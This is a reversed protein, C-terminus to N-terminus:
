GNVSAWIGQRLRNRQYRGGQLSKKLMTAEHKVTRKTSYPYQAQHLLNCGQNSHGHFSIQVAELFRVLSQDRDEIATDHFEVGHGFGGRPVDDWERWIVRLETSEM